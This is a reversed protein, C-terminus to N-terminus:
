YAFCMKTSLKNPLVIKNEVALSRLCNTGMPGDRGATSGGLFGPPNKRLLRPFSPGM